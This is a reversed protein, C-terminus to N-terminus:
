LIDNCKWRVTGSELRDKCVVIMLSNIFILKQIVVEITEMRKCGSCFGVFNFVPM